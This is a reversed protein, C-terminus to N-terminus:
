IAGALYLHRIDMPKVRYKMFLVSIAGPIAAKTDMQYAIDQHTISIDRATAIMEGPVLLYELGDRGKRIGPADLILKGSFDLIGAAAMPLLPMLLEQEVSIEPNPIASLMM